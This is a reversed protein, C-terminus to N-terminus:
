LDELSYERVTGGVSTVLKSTIEVAEKASKGSHMVGMAFDGGTGFAIPSGMDRWMYTTPLEGHNAGIIRMSGNKVYIGVWSEGIDQKLLSELGDIQQITDLAADSGSYFLWGGDFAYKKERDEDSIMQGITMLGDVAIKGDKYAVCTM